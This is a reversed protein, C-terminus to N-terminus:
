FQSPRLLEEAPEMAHHQAARLLEGSAASEESSARLLQSSATLNKVRQRLFPLCEQAAARIERDYGVQGGQYFGSKSEKKYEFHVGKPGVTMGDALKEVAELATEDGVQQYAKLISIILQKQIDNTLRHNENLFANLRSRQSANLLHSDSAYMRPLMRILAVWVEQKIDNDKIELGDVMEGVSSLDNMQALLKTALKQQHTMALRAALLAGLGSFGAIVTGSKFLIEMFLYFILFAAIILYIRKRTSERMVKTIKLLFMLDPANLRTLALDAVERVVKNRSSSKYFLTQLCLQRLEIKLAPNSLLALLDDLPVDWKSLSAKRKYSSKKAFEELKAILFDQQRLVPKIEPIIELYQRRIKEQSTEEGIEQNLLM